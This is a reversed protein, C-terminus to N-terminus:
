YQKYVKIKRFLEGHVMLTGELKNGEINFSWDGHASSNLQNTKSNYTFPLIGMEQESGDVIKSANIYFSDLDKNKSIRYVVNEDHCPSNKIQCLSTGKWTGALLTDM